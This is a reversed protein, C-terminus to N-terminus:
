SLRLIVFNVIAYALLAVVLGVVAYLLTNKAKTILAQDGNSTTYYFGAIVIVVVSVAGLIFLLTNVLNKIFHPVDDDKEQKCLASDVGDCPLVNVAGVAPALSLAMGFILSLSILLNKITKM